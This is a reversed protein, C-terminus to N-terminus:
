PSQENNERNVINITTEIDFSKVLPDKNKDHSSGIMTWIQGDNFVEVYIREEGKYSIGVGGVVSPKVRDPSTNDCIKKAIDISLQSPPEAGYSDWDKELSLMFEFEKAIQEKTLKM